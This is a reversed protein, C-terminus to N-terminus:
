PDGGDKAGRLIYYLLPNMCSLAVNPNQKLYFQTDFLPHPNRGERAGHELYHRAPDIPNDRLDPYNLRYWGPDFFRSQRLLVIAKTLSDAPAWNNKSIFNRFISM